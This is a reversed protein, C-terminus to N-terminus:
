SSINLVAEEYAMCFYFIANLKEEETANVFIPSLSLIKIAQEIEM